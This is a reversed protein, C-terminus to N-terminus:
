RSLSGYHHVVKLKDSGSIAGPNIGKEGEPIQMDMELFYHVWFGNFSDSDPNKFTMNQLPFLAKNNADRYLYWILESCYYSDNHIDFVPDYPKGIYQNSKKIIDPILKRYKKKLRAVFAKAKGNHDSSRSLFSDLPNLVVGQDMAELIMVQGNETKYVMGIHSINYDNYSSTVSEIADCIPGCDIDQFILDGTEPTFDRTCSYILFSFLFVLSLINCVPLIQKNLTWTSMPLFFPCSSIRGKNHTPNIFKLLVKWEPKLPKKM